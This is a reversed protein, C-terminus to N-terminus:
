NSGPRIFPTPCAAAILFARVRFVLRKSPLAGNTEGVGAPAAARYPTRGRRNPRM